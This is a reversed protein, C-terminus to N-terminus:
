IWKNDVYFRYTKDVVTELDDKCRIGWTRFMKEDSCTWGDAVIERVKDAGLLVPKGSVKMQIEGLCGIARAIMEPVIVRTCKRGTNAHFARAVECWAVPEPMTAFYTERVGVMTTSATVIFQALDEVGILSYQRSRFGAQTYLHWSHMMKFLPVFQEDRPGMVAPPRIIIWEAASLEERVAIEGALKSRGYATIPQPPDLETLARGEKSPGCAALSSCYVFRRVGASESARAITATAEGNAAHYDSERVAKTLGACHIVCDVSHVASRVSDSDTIDGVCIEFQASKLWRIRSPDRVLLRVQFDAQLMQEAVHSGVFGTAGTILARPKM